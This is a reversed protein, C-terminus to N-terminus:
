LTGTPTTSLDLADSPATATLRLASWPSRAPVACFVKAMPDFVDPVLVTWNLFPNVPASWAVGVAALVHVSGSAV